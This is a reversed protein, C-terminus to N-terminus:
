AIPFRFVVNRPAARPCELKGRNLPGALTASAPGIVVARQAM